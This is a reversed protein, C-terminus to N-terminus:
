GHMPKGKLKEIKENETCSKLKNEPCCNITDYKQKM